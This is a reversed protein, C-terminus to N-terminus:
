NCRHEFDVGDCERGGEAAEAVVGVRLRRSAVGGVASPRGVGGAVGDRGGRRNISRSGARAGGDSTGGRRTLRGAALYGGRRGLRM